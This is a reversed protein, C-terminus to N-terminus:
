FHAVSKKTEEKWSKWDSPLHAGKKLYFIWGEETVDKWVNDVSNLVLKRRDSPIWQLLDLPRNTILDEFAIGLVRWRVLKCWLGGIGDNFVETRELPNGEIWLTFLVWKKCLFPPSPQPNMKLFHNKRLQIQSHVSPCKGWLSMWFHLSSSWWFESSHIPVMQWETGTRKLSERREWQNM